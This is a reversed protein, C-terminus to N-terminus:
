ASLCLPSYRPDTEPKFHFYYIEFHIYYVSFLVEHRQLKLEFDFQSKLDFQVGSM